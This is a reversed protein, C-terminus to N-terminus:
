TKPDPDDAGGARCHRCFKCSVSIGLMEAGAVLAAEDPSSAQFIIKGDKVEPIVTHCVALLALFDQIVQGEQDTQATRQRLTEFTKQGQERKSEDVVQAYMTGFM